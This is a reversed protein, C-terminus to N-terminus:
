SELYSKQMPFGFLLFTRPALPGLFHFSILLICVGYLNVDDILDYTEVGVETIPTRKPVAGAVNNAYDIRQFAAVCADTFRQVSDEKAINVGHFRIDVAPYQSKVLAATEELQATNIDGIFLRTCGAAAFCLATSRGIGLFILYPPNEM